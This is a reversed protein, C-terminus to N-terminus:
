TSFTSNDIGIINDMNSMNFNNAYAIYELFFHFLTEPIIKSKNKFILKNSILQNHNKETM